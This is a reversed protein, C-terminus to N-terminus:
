SFTVNSHDVCQLRSHERGPVTGMLSLWCGLKGFLQVRVDFPFGCIKDFRLISFSIKM